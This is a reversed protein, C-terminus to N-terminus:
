TWFLKSLVITLVTVITLDVSVPRLLIQDRIFDNMVRVFGASTANCAASLLCATM